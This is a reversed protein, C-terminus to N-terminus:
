VSVCVCVSFCLVVSSNYFGAAVCMPVSCHVHLFLNPAHICVYLWVNVSVCVSVCGSASEISRSYLCLCVCVCAYLYIYVCVTTCVFFVVSCMLCRITGFCSKQIWHWRNKKKIIFVIITPLRLALLFIRNSTSNRFCMMVWLCSSQRILVTFTARRFVVKLLSCITVTLPGSYSGSWLWKSMCGTANLWATSKLTILM